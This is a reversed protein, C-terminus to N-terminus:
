VALSVQRDFDTANVNCAVTSISNFVFDMVIKLNHILRTPTLQNCVTSLSFSTVNTGTTLSFSYKSHTTAIGCFSWTLFVSHELEKWSLCLMVTIMEDKNVNAVLHFYILNSVNLWIFQIFINIKNILKILAEITMSEKARM